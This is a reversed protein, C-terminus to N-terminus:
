YHPPKERLMRDDNPGHDVPGSAPEDRGAPPEPSVDTGPVPTLRARRSGPVKEVHQRESM